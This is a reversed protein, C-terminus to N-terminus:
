ITRITTMRLGVAYIPLTFSDLAIEYALFRGSDRYTPSSIHRDGGSGGQRRSCPPRCVSSGSVTGASVSKLRDDRWSSLISPTVFVLPWSSPFIPSDLFAGIRVREWREGRKSPSIEDRYKRLADALTFREGPLSEREERLVTETRAAWADAKRKTRFVRSKRKGAVFVHARYRGDSTKVISAM